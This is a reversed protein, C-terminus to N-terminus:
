NIRIDDLFGISDSRYINLINKFPRKVIDYIAEVFNIHEDMNLSSKELISLRDEIKELKSEISHLVELIYKEYKINNKNNDQKNEQM